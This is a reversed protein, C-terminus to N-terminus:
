TKGNLPSTRKKLKDIYNKVLMTKGMDILGDDKTEEEDFMQNLLIKTPWINSAIFAQKLLLIKEFDVKLLFSIKDMGLHVIEEKDLPLLEHLKKGEPTDDSTLPLFTNVVIDNEHVFFTFYGVARGEEMLCTFLVSKGTKALQLGNTFSSQILINLNSPDFADLREKFRQLAHSQIYINMNEDDKAEPYIRNRAVTAPRPSYLGDATMFLRYAKRKINNHIFTKSESEQATLLFTLKNIYCCGCKKTKTECDYEYGYMRYTVRSYCRTWYWIKDLVEKFATELIRDSDFKEFIQKSVEAQPTGAIFANRRCFDSLNGIFTLGYTALEMYTLQNEPKGWYHTKM